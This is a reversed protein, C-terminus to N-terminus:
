ILKNAEKVEEWYLSELYDKRQIAIKCRERELFKKLEYEDQTDDVTLYAIVNGNQVNIFRFHKSKDNM